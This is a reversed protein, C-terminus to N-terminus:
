CFPSEDLACGLSGAYPSSVFNCFIHHSLSLLIFSPKLNTYLDVALVTVLDM